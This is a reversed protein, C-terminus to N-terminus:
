KSQLWKDMNHPINFINNERSEMLHDVVCIWLAASAQLESQTSRMWDLYIIM